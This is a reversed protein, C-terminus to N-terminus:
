FFSHNICEMRTNEIKLLIDQNANYERLIHTVKQARLSNVNHKVMSVYKQLIPEKAYVDWKDRSVVLHSHPQLKVEWERMLSTLTLGVKYSKNWSPQQHQLFLFYLSVEVVLQEKSELILGVKSENKNIIRQDILDVEQM